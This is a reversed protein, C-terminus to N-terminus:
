LKQHRSESFCSTSILQRLKSKLFQIRRFVIQILQTNVTIYSILVWLDYLKENNINLEELIFCLQNETFSWSQSEGQGSRKM